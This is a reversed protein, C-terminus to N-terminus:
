KPEMKKKLYSILTQPNRSNGSQTEDIWLLRNDRAKIIRIRNNEYYMSNLGWGYQRKMLTLEIVIDAMGRDQVLKFRGWEKLANCLKDFDKDTAGDNYVFATKATLLTEPLPADKAFFLTPIFLALGLLYRM